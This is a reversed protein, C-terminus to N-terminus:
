KAEDKKEADKGKDDKKEADKGEDDGDKDDDGEDMDDGDDGGEFAAAEWCDVADSAEEYGCFSGPFAKGCDLEWWEGEMCFNIATETECWAVGELEPTCDVGDVQAAGKKADAKKSKAKDSVKQTSEQAKKADKEGGGKAKMGAKPAASPTASSPASAPKTSASAKPGSASAVPKASGGAPEPKKEECAVFLVVACVPVLCKVISKMIKREQRPERPWNNRTLLRGVAPTRKRGKAGLRWDM